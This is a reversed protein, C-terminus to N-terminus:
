LCETKITETSLTGPELTKKTSLQPIVLDIVEITVTDSSKIIPTDLTQVNSNWKTMMEHKSEGSSFLCTELFANRDSPLEDNILKQLLAAPGGVWVVGQRFDDVLYPKGDITIRLQHTKDTPQGFVPLSQMLMNGPALRLVRLEVKEFDQSVRLNVSRWPRPRIPEKNTLSWGTPQDLRLELEKPQPFLFIPGGDLKGETPSTILEQRQPFATGASTLVALQVTEGPPGDDTLYISSTTFFLVVSALFLSMLVARAYRHQLWRELFSGKESKVTRAAFTGITKWIAIMGAVAGAGLGLNAMWRNAGDAVLPFLHFYFWTSLLLISATALALNRRLPVIPPPFLVSHSGRMYLVPVGWDREGGGGRNLIGLRGESVASDISEGNALARYFRRSFAIASSDRITYQMGVVAPIGQRALASAIGSWPTVPDRGAAECANLVALRIGKGRLELALTGVDVPAPRNDDGSLILNGAGEITGPEEGMQREVVGHGSFHFVQADETLIEQLQISTGPRLFRADIGGVGELAQRLNLEERDFDLTAYAPDKVDALLAITRIDYHELPQIPTPAEGVIEYRVLSLKRDVALFGEPGKRGPPVDPREVYVYEWPLVALKPDHPRIRIRLGEDDGLKALCRRYIDRVPPPLLLSALEEGLVILEDFSLARQELKQLNQRLQVPFSVKLADSDRQEGVPSSAVRARLSEGEDDRHYDLLDIDLNRYHNM